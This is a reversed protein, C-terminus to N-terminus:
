SIFPLTAMNIGTHRFAEAAAAFPMGVTVDDAKTTACNYIADAVEQPSQSLPLMRVTSRFNKRDEQSEKGFFTTREMHNSKVIGPHVQGIHINEGSLESRIAETFGMLAYKSATFASMYKLPVKGAFSNVMIISPRDQNFFTGRKKEAEKLMIPLFSQSVMYAGLYNTEMLQKAELAPTDAFAGRTMVGANNVVVDVKEFKALVRNVMDRVERENTVDCPIALASGMDRVDRETTGDCPIALASGQRNALAACDNAVYQLKTADRACVVVNYGKKAFTLATARGIGQSGGTIVVTRGSAQSGGTIVVTRGSAKFSGDVPRAPQLRRPTLNSDVGFTDLIPSFDVLPAPNPPPRNPAMNSENVYYDRPNPRSGGSYQAVVKLARRSAPAAPASGHRMGGAPWPFANSPRHRHGINSHQGYSSGPRNTSSAAQEMRMRRSTETTSSELRMSM